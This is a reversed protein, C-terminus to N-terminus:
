DKTSRTCHCYNEGEWGPKDATERVKFPQLFSFAFAFFLLQLFPLELNRAVAEQPKTRKQKKGIGQELLAAEM